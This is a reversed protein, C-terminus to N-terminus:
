LNENQKLKFNKIMDLGTIFDQFNEEEIIYVDMEKETGFIKIKITILGKTTGVSNVTRLYIKNVDKKKEKIRILRSNILSM